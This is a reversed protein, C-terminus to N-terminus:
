STHSIYTFKCFVKYLLYPSELLCFYSLYSKFFLMVTGLYIFIFLYNINKPFSVYIYSFLVLVIDLNTKYFPVWFFLLRTIRRRETLFILYFLSRFVQLPYLHIVFQILIMNNHMKLEM